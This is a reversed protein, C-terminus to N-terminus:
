SKVCQTLQPNDAKPRCQHDGQPPMPPMPQEGQPPMPPMPQGGQQPPAAQQPPPAMAEPPTYAKKLHGLQTLLSDLDDSITDHNKSM